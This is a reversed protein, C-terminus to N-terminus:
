KKRRVGKEKKRGTVCGEIEKWEEKKEKDQKEKIKERNEKIGEHRLM